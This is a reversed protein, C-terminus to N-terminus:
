NSRSGRLEGSFAFNINEFELDYIQINPQPRKLPFFRVPLLGLTIRFGRSLIIGSPLHPTITSGVPLSYCLRLLSASGAWVVSKFVRITLEGVFKFRINHGLRTDQILFFPLTLKIVRLDFGLSVSASRWARNTSIARLTPADFSGFSKSLAKLFTALFLPVVAM